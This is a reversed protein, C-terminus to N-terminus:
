HLDTYTHIPADTETEAGVKIKDWAASVRYRIWHCTLPMRNMRVSMLHIIERLKLNTTTTLSGICLQSLRIPIMVTIIEFRCNASVDLSVAGPLTAVRSMEQERVGM